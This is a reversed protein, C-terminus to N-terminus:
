EKRVKIFSQPIVSKYKPMSQGLNANIFTPDAIVYRRSGDKVSDGRMPIYLATAMHDKYKVGVVKIKFLEKVLYAFLIARDECDSKDYYLTEEAFMVKERGFQLDDVEYVFAKQVFKLVFNIGDSAHKGDIYKKMEKAISYYVGSEMPANFFTEYDAQPYTAMFDIINQNLTFSTTYKKGYQQFFLEKKKPKEQFKPLQTLSLDIAKKAGPYSQEYTYVRGVKGQGYYSLVYFKKENFTYSPTAYILKKSYHMLVISKGNLGVKVDYSLKNLVFWTFLKAEDENTFSKEGLMKVLLYVGWDNLMLEEKIEEVEKILLVYDSKAMVSFYNAIGEQNRPFYRASKMQSDVSFGLTSGFFNIVVDKSNSLDEGTPPALPQTKTEEQLKLHIKPGLKAIPKEKVQFINKPKPEAYLKTGEQAKYEEWELKLYNNFAEDREDKYSQFSKSQKTKFDKFSQASLTASLLLLVLNFHGFLKFLKQVGDKNQQV